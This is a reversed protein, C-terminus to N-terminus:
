RKFLKLLAPYPHKVSHFHKSIKLFNNLLEIDNKDEVEDLSNRMVTIRQTITYSDLNRLYFSLSAIYGICISEDSLIYGSKLDYSFLVIGEMAAKEFSPLITIM